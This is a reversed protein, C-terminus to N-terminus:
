SSFYLPAPPIHNKSSVVSRAVGPAYFEDELVPLMTFRKSAPNSPFRSYNVITFGPEAPPSVPTQGHRRDYFIERQTEPSYCLPLALSPTGHRPGAVFGTRAGGDWGEGKFPSPSFFNAATLRSVTNDPAKSSQM